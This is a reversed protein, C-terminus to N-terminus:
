VVANADLVVHFDGHRRRANECGLDLFYECM